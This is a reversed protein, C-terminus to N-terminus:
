RPRDQVWTGDSREEERTGGELAQALAKRVMAELSDLAQPSSFVEKVRQGFRGRLFELADARAGLLVRSGNIGHRDLVELRESALEGHRGGGVIVLDPEHGALWLDAEAIQEVCVVTHGLRMLLRRVLGCADEQDEIVLILSM